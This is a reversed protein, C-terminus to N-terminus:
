HLPTSIGPYKLSNLKISETVVKGVVLIATCTLLKVIHVFIYFSVQTVNACTLAFCCDDAQVGIHLESVFLAAGRHGPYIIADAPDAKMSVPRKPMFKPQSSILLHPHLVVLIIRLLSM